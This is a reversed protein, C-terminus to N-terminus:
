CQGGELPYIVLNIMWILYSSQRYLIVEELWLFLEVIRPTLLQCHLQYIYHYCTEYSDFTVFPATPIQHKVMFEKAFQKSGEIQSAYKTPGFCDINSKHLFDTYGNVLYNEPGIIVTNIKKKKVLDLMDQKIVSDGNCFVDLDAYEVKGQQCNDLLMGDNGPYIYIKSINSSKSLIDVLAHERAGSGLVLVSSSNPPPTVDIKLSNTFMTFWPTYNTKHMIRLSQKSLWPIQWKLFSREPHPMMALHRGNISQIAAVGQYSGNPNFPYTETPYSNGKKTAIYQLPIMDHKLLIKYIEPHIVFQGEKHASWIGFQTKEM